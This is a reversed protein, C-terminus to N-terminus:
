LNLFEVLKLGLLTKGAGLEGMVAVCAPESPDALFHLVEDKLEELELLRGKMFYSPPPRLAFPSSHLKLIEAVGNYNAAGLFDLKSIAFKMEDSCSPYALGFVPTKLRKGKFQRYESFKFAVVKEAAQRTAQDVYIASLEVSSGKALTMLRAALNVTDGFVSFEKRTGASGLVGAFAVGTAIGM